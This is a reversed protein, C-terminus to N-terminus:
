RKRLWMLAVLLAGAALAATLWPPMSSANGFNVSFGSSDWGTSQRGDAAASSPASLNLPPIMSPGAAPSGPAFAGGPQASM